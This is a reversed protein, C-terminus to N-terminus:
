VEVGGDPDSPDVADVPLGMVRLIMRIVTSVAYLATGFAAVLVFPWIPLDLVPTEAGSAQNRLVFQYLQFSLLGIVIISFIDAFLDMVMKWRPGVREYILDITIHDGMDESHAVALFVVVVLLMSTVEVTGPVPRSLLTRGLIDTVTLFLLAMLGIGALYHTVTNFGRVAAVWRPIDRRTM